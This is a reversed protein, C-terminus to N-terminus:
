NRSAAFQRAPIVFDEDDTEETESIDITEDIQDILSQIDTVNAHVPIDHAPNSEGTYRIQYVRMAIEQIAKPPCVEGPEEFIREWESLIRNEEEGTLARAHQNRNQYPRYGPNKLLLQRWTRVTEFPIGTVIAIDHVGGFYLDPRSLRQFHVELSSMADVYERHQRLPTLRKLPDGTVESEENMMDRLIRERARATREDEVM